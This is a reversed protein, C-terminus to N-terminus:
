FKYGVGFGVVLPDINVDARVGSPQFKATTDVYIKKVDVNAYWNNGLPVDAGVQLAPGFSDAYHAQHLDGGDADFFHTYNVGVGAYPIVWSLDTYHYQLMLTPPLLWVNGADAGSSHNVSHKTVAAILEASINPTFFYSVDVEPTWANKVNVDGGINAWSSEQPVVDLARARIMFDGAKFPSSAVPAAIASSSLAVAAIATYVLPKM